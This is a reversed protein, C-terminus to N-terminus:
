SINNQAMFEKISPRADWCWTEVEDGSLKIKSINKYINTFNNQFNGL